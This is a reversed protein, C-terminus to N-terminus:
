DDTAEAGGREEAERPDAAAIWFGAPGDAASIQSFRCLSITLM